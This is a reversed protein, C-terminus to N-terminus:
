GFVIADKDTSKLTEGFFKWEGKLKHSNTDTQLFILRNWWKMRWICETKSDRSCIPWKWKQSHRVLFFFTFKLKQSNTDVHFFRPQKMLKNQLFLQNLFGAIMPQSKKPRYRLILIKWGFIPNTCSCLM